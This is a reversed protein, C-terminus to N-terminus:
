SDTLHPVFHLLNIFFSKGNSSGRRKIARVSPQHYPPKGHAAAPSVHQHYWETDEEEMGRSPATAAAAAICNLPFFSNFSIVVILFPYDYVLLQNTGDLAALLLLISCFLFM